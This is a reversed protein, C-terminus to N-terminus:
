AFIRKRVMLVLNVKYSQWWLCSGTLTRVLYMGYLIFRRLVILHFWDRLVPNIEGGRGGLKNKENLKEFNPGMEFM